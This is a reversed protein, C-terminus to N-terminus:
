RTWRMGRGVSTVIAFRGGKDPVPRRSSTSIIQGVPMAFYKQILSQVVWILKFHRPFNPEARLRNRTLLDFMIGIGICTGVAEPRKKIM